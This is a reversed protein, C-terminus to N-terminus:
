ALAAGMQRLEPQAAARQRQLDIGFAFADKAHLGDSVIGFFQVTAPGQVSEWTITESSFAMSSRKM